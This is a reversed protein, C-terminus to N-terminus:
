REWSLLEDLPATRLAPPPCGSLRGCNASRSRARAPVRRQDHARISGISDERGQTGHQHAGMLCEFLSEIRRAYEIGPAEVWTKSRM